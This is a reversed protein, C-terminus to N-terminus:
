PLYRAPIPFEPSEHQWLIHIIWWRSGDFLLQFSNIGRIYPHLDTETRRSEYTSFVHAINGFREEIRHIETEFFGNKILWADMQNRYEDSSMIKLAMKGDPLKGTRISRSQPICLSQMRPWDRPQGPPGSISEYSARVISNTSDVDEPRAPIQPIPSGYYDEPLEAQIKTM